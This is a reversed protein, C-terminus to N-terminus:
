RWPYIKSTCLIVYLEYDLIIILRNFEHTTHLPFHKIVDDLLRLLWSNKKLRLVMCMVFAKRVMCVPNGACCLSSQWGQNDKRQLINNQHVNTECARKYFEVFILAVMSCDYVGSERNKM